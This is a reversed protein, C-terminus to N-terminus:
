VNQEGKIVFLAPRLVSKEISWKIDPSFRAARSEVFSLSTTAQQMPMTTADEERYVLQFVQTTKGTELDFLINAGIWFTNTM